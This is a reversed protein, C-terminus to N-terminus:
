LEHNDQSSLDSVALKECRLFRLILEEGIVSVRTARINLERLNRDKVQGNSDLSCLYGIGDDGTYTRSIDMMALEQNHDGDTMMVSDTCKRRGLNLSTLHPLRLLLESINDPEIHIQNYIDLVSINRCM